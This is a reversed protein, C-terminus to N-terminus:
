HDITVGFPDRFIRYDETEELTQEEFRPYLRTDVTIEVRFSPANFYDNEDADALMGEDIWRQRTESWGEWHTVPMRDFRGYHM